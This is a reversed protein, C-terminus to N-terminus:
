DTDSAIQPPRYVLRRTVSESVVPPPCLVAVKLASSSQRFLRLREVAYALVSTDESPMAFKRGIATGIAAIAPLVRMAINATPLRIAALVDPAVM